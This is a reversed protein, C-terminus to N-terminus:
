RLGLKSALKEARKIRAKVVEDKLLEDPKVYRQGRAGIYIPRESKNSNTM